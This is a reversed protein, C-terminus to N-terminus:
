GLLPRQEGQVLRQQQFLDPLMARAQRGFGIFPRGNTGSKQVAAVLWGVGFPLCVLIFALGSGGWAYVTSKHELPWQVGITRVWSGAGVQTFETFGGGAIGSVGGEGGDCWLVQSGMEEARALAQVWMAVGVGTHWTRAPALILSPRSPLTTFADPFAFDLCISATVPLPHASKSGNPFYLRPSIIHVDPPDPSAAMSFSEAVPILHQKYYEFAVGTQHILAFGNRKQVVRNQGGPPAIVEEFSIGIYKSQSISAVAEIAARKQEANDFSVAGEPWLLIEARNVYRTTERVFDQLTPVGGVAPPHPLICGVSLPVSGSTYQPLPLTHHYSPVMLLLLFAALAQVHRSRSPSISENQVDARDSDQPFEIDILREHGRTPGTETGLFWATIFEYLITSWAAAVFDVGMQGSYSRLWTYPGLGAMPSWNLLGGVPSLLSIIGWTTAYLFPFLTIKFWLPGLRAAVRNDVVVIVVACLSTSLSIAM